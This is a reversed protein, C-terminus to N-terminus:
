VAVNDILRTKGLWVAAVLRVPENGRLLPALTDANRAEFYDVIFGMRELGKRAAETVQKPKGGEHIRTAADLLAHHLAPALTRETHSLYANRSSMALGDSERMTKGAIIKVPIDLDRAMHTVVKLQQYDKEGFIAIDPAVQLLLKCVVTAVGGFFHPRHADELEVCAPGKVVIETAFGDPYVETAAPAFVLDVDLTALKALDGAEDRPYHNLDESPAFQTPNVFISVIVRKARKQATKVLSLHGDHLAGMTPVLGITEGANRWIRIFKRLDKVSRVIKPTKAM